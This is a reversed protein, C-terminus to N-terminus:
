LETSPEVHVLTEADAVDGNANLESVAPVWYMYRTKAEFEEPEPVGVVTINVAPPLVFPLKAEAGPEAFAPAPAIGSEPESLEVEYTAETLLSAGVPYQLSLSFAPAVEATPTPETADFPAAVETVKPAEPGKPVEAVNLPVEDRMTTGSLVAHFEGDTV